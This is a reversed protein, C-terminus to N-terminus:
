WEEGTREQSKTAKTLKEEPKEARQADREASDAEFKVALEEISEEPWDLDELDLRIPKPSQTVNYDTDLGSGTRSISIGHGNHGLLDWGEALLNLIDKLITKNVVIVRVKRRAEEDADGNPSALVVGMVLYRTRTQGRFMRLTEAFFVRDHPGHGTPWLLKIRTKGDKPFFYAGNGKSNLQDLMNQWDGAPIETAPTKLAQEVAASKPKDVAPKDAQKTNPTAM